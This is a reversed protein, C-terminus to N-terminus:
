FVRSPAPAPAPKTFGAALEVLTRVGFGTGGKPNEAHEADSYAPGAIDLHAWAIGDAVFRELILGATIAGGHPGGLNKMDAVNSEFQSEYDRPLPLPWVREGAAAAATRIQDVWEQNNGMLGAIRPGLAVMCAGTLTALDVIADPRAESALSLADALILRGEADTNVVEITKGNRIKLVDGPRTADGGLMNDTMPLYARVATPPALAGIVSMAGIVAAAGAMDMKMTLMGSTTKINLGGADFTIGKGVLALSGKAEGEPTHTLEVFRPPNTSGRNVGLLGGLKRRKIEASTWVKVGLGAARGIEATRAAMVPATLSGGPENVLDRALCQGAAVAAGQEIEGKARAGAGGAVDVRRLKAETPDSKLATYGYAGLVIGEALARRTGAAPDAPLEVGARGYRSCSRALAAGARRYARHDAESEPGLGVLARSRDSDPWVHVQDAKGEFGARELQRGAIGDIGAKVAEVTVLTVAIDAAAPLSRVARVEVSM